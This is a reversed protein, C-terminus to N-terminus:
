RITGRVSFILDEVLIFMRTKARVDGERVIISGGESLYYNDIPLVKVCYADVLFFHGGMVNQCQYHNFTKMSHM